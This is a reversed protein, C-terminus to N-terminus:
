WRPLVIYNLCFNILRDCNRLLLSLALVTKDKRFPLSNQFSDTPQTYQGQMCSHFSAKRNNRYERRNREWIKREPITESIRIRRTRGKRNRRWLLCPWLVLMFSLSLLIVLAQLTDTRWSGSPRATCWEYDRVLPILIYRHLNGTFHAYFRCSPTM